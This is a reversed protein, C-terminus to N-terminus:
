RLFRAYRYNINVVIVKQRSALVRGDYLDLSPSGSFFGGGYIWVMVRGDHESPVWINLALCDEDFAQFGKKFSWWYKRMNLFLYAVNNTVLIEHQVQISIVFFITIFFFDDAQFNWWHLELNFLLFDFDPHLLDNPPFEDVKVSWLQPLYQKRYLLLASWFTAIKQTSIKTFFLRAVSLLILTWFISMIHHRVPHAILTIQQSTM